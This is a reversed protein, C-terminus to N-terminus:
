FYFNGNNVKPTSTPVNTNPTGANTAVKKQYEEDNKKKTAWMLERNQLAKVIDESTITEDLGFVYPEAAAGTVDWSKFNRTATDVMACDDGGFASAIKNTTVVKKNNMTGDIRTFLPEKESLELSEFYKIGEPHRVVFSVPLIDNRFNFIYGCIRLFDEKVKDGDAETLITKTVVMDVSFKHRLNEQENLTSLINIFGGECRIASVRDGSQRDFFDNLAINPTAQIKTADKGYKTWTKGEDIIKKLATFTRNENGKNTTPTVYTYYVEIVNLGDEDVAIKLSGQIFEKGYNQSDERQVTKLSLTHEFLYGEINATNLFTKKM